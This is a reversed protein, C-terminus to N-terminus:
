HDQPIKSQFDRIAWYSSAFELYKRCTQGTIKWTKDCITLIM